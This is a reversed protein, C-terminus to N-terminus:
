SASSRGNVGSVAGQDGLKSAGAGSSAGARTLWVVAGLIIAGGLLQNAQLPEDLFIAALVVTVVPELTSLTAADAGGLRQMGAFFGVMAIVTSVLAIATVATWGSVGAPWSPASGGAVAGFVIAASLMVVTAAALPDEKDLVQSGALVYVSYILAASIGLAIGLPQGQMSGGLTLATGALAALVACIRGASLRRRWLLAGLVTVLIPYLYLLLAVLGASAYHLATFFCYSQAVYGLGGMLILVLLNRGRPWRRRSFLMVGSLLLGALMFRLFLVAVVDAGSAYTYRAFIAMAGFSAASLTIYLAGVLRDRNM